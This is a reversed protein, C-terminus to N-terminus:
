DMVVRWEDPLELGTALKVGGLGWTLLLDRNWGPNSVLWTQIVGRRGTREGVKRGGHLKIWETGNELGSHEFGKLGCLFENATKSPGSIAAVTVTTDM